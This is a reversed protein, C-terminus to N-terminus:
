HPDRQARSWNEERAFPPSPCLRSRDDVLVDVDLGTGRAALSPLLLSTLSAHSVEVPNLIGGRSPAAEDAKEQRYRCSNSEPMLHTTNGRYLVGNIFGYRPNCRESLVESAASEFDLAVDRRRIARVKFVKSGRASVNALQRRTLRLPSTPKSLFSERLEIKM